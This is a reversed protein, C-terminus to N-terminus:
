GIDQPSSNAFYIPNIEKLRRLDRRAAALHETKLNLRFRLLLAQWSEPALEIARNYESFALGYQGRSEAITGLQMHPAPDWPTLKTATDAQDVAKEVQGSRVSDASARVYHDAIAPVVLVVISVWAALLGALKFAGRDRGPPREPDVAEASAIWAAVLMILAATAGLKWFWDFALSLFLAATLALMAPTERGLRRRWALFGLWILSLPIALAILGGPIGLEALNELYFSHADQTILASTRRMNWETPYTGAGSGLIPHDAFTDLAVRNFEYRGSGSLETYRSKGDTPVPVNSVTFQDWVNNGFALSLILVVAVGVGAISLLLQRDRSVEVARRTMAERDRALQLVGELAVASVTIAAIAALVVILIAGTAPEEYRDGSIAPFQNVVLLLLTTGATLVLLTVLMRLRRESLFFLVIMAVIFVLLAGRSYTLYLAAGSLIGMAVCVIRWRREPVTAAFWTFLVSAAMFFIGDGNWYGLPYTLRVLGTEVPHDAGPILRDGLALLVVFGLGAAVGRAFWERQKPTRLTLYSATFFGLYGIGREFEALSASVSSSWISSIAALLALSLILGGVLGLSRGPRIRDPWPGILLV